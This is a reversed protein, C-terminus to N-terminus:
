YPTTNPRKAFEIPIKLQSKIVTGPDFRWQAYAELAAADLQQYGTSQLMRAGTVKGTQQDITLLVVGKGALGQKAWESRYVPNPRYIARPVTAPQAEANSESPSTAPESRAEAATKGNGKFGAQRVADCIANVGERIGGEFDGNRFHPKIKHETIDFAKSNPIVNALGDGVQMFIRRDQAFVFLVVGNARNAQGAGWANALRRTYGDIPATSEMKSYIAVVVQNSTEREFQALQENFQSAADSSIVGAYDDFYLKPRPPIREDPPIPATLTEFPSSEAIANSKEASKSSSPLEGAKKGTQVQNKSVIISVLVTAGALLSLAGVVLRMRTRPKPASESISSRVAFAKSEAPKTSKSPEPFDNSESPRAAPPEPPPAALTAFLEAKEEPVTFSKEIAEILRNVDAHFRTESLEIANRRTLPALAEPLDQKRPMQAGGVLVPIVRIKRQLAAVIEMRVFDEEDDLRRKGSADTASLWRPGIAVIAIDCASVKRNIVEVFDEGPEIQDIDIFVQDGSFHATLRDYLRGAYPATDERRYNIFLKANM